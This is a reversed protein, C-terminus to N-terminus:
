KQSDEGSKLVVPETKQKLDAVKEAIAVAKEEVVEVAEKISVSKDTATEPKVDKQPESSNEKQSDEGSMKPATVMEEEKRDAAKEPVAIPEQKDETETAEKSENKQSEAVKTPAIEQRVDKEPESSKGM